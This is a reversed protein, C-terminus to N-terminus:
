SQVSTESPRPPKMLTHLKASMLTHVRACVDLIATAVTSMVLLQMHSRLMAVKFPQVTKLRTTNCMLCHLAHTAASGDQADGLRVVLMAGMDVAQQNCNSLCQM